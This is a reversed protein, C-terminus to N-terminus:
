SFFPHFLKSHSMFSTGSDDDFNLEELELITDNFQKDLDMNSPVDDFVFPVNDLTPSMERGRFFTSRNDMPSLFSYKFAPSIIEPTTVKKTDKLALVELELFAEHQSLSEIEFKTVEMDESLSEILRDSTVTARSMRQINDVDVM